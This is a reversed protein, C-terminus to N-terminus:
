EVHSPEHFFLRQLLRLKNFVPVGHLFDFMFAVESNYKGNQSFQENEILICAVAKLFKPRCGAM